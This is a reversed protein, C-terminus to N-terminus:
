SKFNNPEYNGASVRIQERLNKPKYGVMKTFYDWSVNDSHYSDAGKLVFNREISAQSGLEDVVVKALDSIEILEGGSEIVESGTPVMLAVRLFDEVDTYRRYVLENARIKISQSKSQEILDYLAYIAPTQCYRGSMSFPRLLVVNQKSAGGAKTLKREYDAKQFGYPDLEQNRKKDQLYPVAAGSSIGIFRRVFPQTQLDLAQEMLTKNTSLYHDIGYNSILHRTVFACDIVVTPQFDLCAQFNNPLLDRSKPNWLENGKSTRLMVLAKQGISIQAATKGFWGSAGLVLVRDSESLDLLPETV